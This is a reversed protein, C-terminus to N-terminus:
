AAERGTADRMGEFEGTALLANLAAVSIRWRGTKKIQRAFPAGYLKCWKTMTYRHVGAIKAAAPPSIWTDGQRSIPKASIEAEVIHM